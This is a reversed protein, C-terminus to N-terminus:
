GVKRLRQSAPAHMVASPSPGRHRKKLEGRLSLLVKEQERMERLLPHPVLARGTAGGEATAPCGLAEWAERLGRVVVMAYEYAEFEDREAEVVAGKV